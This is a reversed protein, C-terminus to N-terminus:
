GAQVDPVIELEADTEIGAETLTEMHNLEHGDLLAQYSTDIPLDMARRAEDVVEAITADRMVDSLLAQRSHDWDRVTITLPESLETTSTEM